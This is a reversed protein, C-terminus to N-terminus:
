FTYTKTRLLSNPFLVDRVAKMSSLSEEELGRYYLLATRQTHNNPKMFKGDFYYLDNWEVEAIYDTSCSNKLIGGVAGLGDPWQSGILLMEKAHLKERYRRPLSKVLESKGTGYVLDHLSKRSVGQKFLFRIENIWSLEGFVLKESEITYSLLGFLAPLGIQGAKEALLSDLKEGEDNPKDLYGNFNDYINALLIERDHEQVFGTQFFLLAYTYEYMNINTDLLNANKGFADEAFSRDGMFSYCFSGFGNFRSVLGEMNRFRGYEEGWFKRKEADSENEKEELLRNLKLGEKPDKALLNMEGLISDFKKREEAVIGAPKKRLLRVMNYYRGLVTFVDFGYEKLANLTLSSEM